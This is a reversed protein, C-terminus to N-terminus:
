KLWVYPREGCKTNCITVHFEQKIGLFDCIENLKESRVKMFWNKFTKNKGGQIIDINYEFCIKKKYFSSKLINLKEQSVKGHLKERYVTVHVGHAPSHTFLRCHKNVFSQYLKGFDSSIVLRVVNDGVHLTASSKLWYNM